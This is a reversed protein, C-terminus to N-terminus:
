RRAAVALDWAPSSRLARLARSTKLRFRRLDDRHYVGVRPWDLTDRSSFRGKPLSAGVRYGARRAAAAVREDVDGYPYAISVCPRGMRQECEARSGELEADLEADGLRTLRPHTRTHSGVEWGADALGRLEAWDLCRLEHEHAGGLWRDIGDWSMPGPSGPYRTPVYISGPLGLREMIPLALEAVSRYADDFTVAVTRREPPATLAATLTSGRYGRRLLWELQEEFREPTTSLDAAWDASLAHYCLVLLDSM